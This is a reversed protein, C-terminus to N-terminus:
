LYIYMADLHGHEHEDAAVFHPDGSHGYVDYYHLERGLDIRLHALCRDKYGEYSRLSNTYLRDQEAYLCFRRFSIHDSASFDDAVFSRVEAVMRADLTGCDAVQIFGTRSADLRVWEQKLQDKYKDTTLSAPLLSPSHIWMWIGSAFHECYADFTEDGALM